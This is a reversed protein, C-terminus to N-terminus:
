GCGLIRKTRGNLMGQHYITLLGPSLVNGGLLVTGHKILMNVIATVGQPTLSRDIADNRFLIFGGTGGVRQQQQQQQYPEFRTLQHYACYQLIFSRWCNLQKERTTAVPQITFFPKFSWFEPYTFGETAAFSTM